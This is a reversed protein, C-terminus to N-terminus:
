RQARAHEPASAQDDRSLMLATVALVVTAVEVAFAVVAFPASWTDRFGFLGHVETVLFGSATAFGYGAALVAAWARRTILVVAGIAIGAISQLLFLVGITPIARYSYTSWLRLHMVASWIVLAAIFTFICTEVIGDLGSQRSPKVFLFERGRQTV